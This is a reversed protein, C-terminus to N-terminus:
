IPGWSALQVRVCQCMWGLSGIHLDKLVSHFLAGLSTISVSTAVALLAIPSTDLLIGKLLKWDHPKIMEPFSTIKQVSEKHAM